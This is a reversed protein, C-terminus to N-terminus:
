YLREKHFFNSELLWYTVPIFILVGDSYFTRFTLEITSNKQHFVYRDYDLKVYSKPLDGFQVAFPQVSYTFSKQCSNAGTAQTNQTLAAADNEFSSVNPGMRGILASEFEVPRNFYILRFFNHMLTSM